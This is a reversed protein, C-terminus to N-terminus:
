LELWVPRTTPRKLLWLGTDENLENERIRGQPARDQGGKIGSWSELLRRQGRWRVSVELEPRMVSGHWDIVNSKQMCNDQRM